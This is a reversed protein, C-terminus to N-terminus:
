ITHSLLASTFNAGIGDLKCKDTPQFSTEKRGDFGVGFEIQPVSCSGFDGIASARSQFQLPAASTYLSPPLLSLAVVLALIRLMISFICLTACLTRRYWFDTM